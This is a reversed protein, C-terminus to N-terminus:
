CPGTPPTAKQERARAEQRGRRHAAPAPPVAGEGQRGLEQAM